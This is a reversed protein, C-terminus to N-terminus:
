VAAGPMAVTAYPIAELTIATYITRPDVAKADKPYVAELSDFMGLPDRGQKSAYHSTMGMSGTNIFNALPGIMVSQAINVDIEGDKAVLTVPAGTRLGLCYIESGKALVQFGTGRPLDALSVDSVSLKTAM